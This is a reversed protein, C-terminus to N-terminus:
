KRLLVEYHSVTSDFSAPCRAAPAVVATDVSQWRIRIADM